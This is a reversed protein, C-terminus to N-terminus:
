RRDERMRRRREKREEEPLCREHAYGGAVICRPGVRGCYVCHRSVHGWPPRPM